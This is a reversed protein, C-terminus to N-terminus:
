VENEVSQLVSMVVDKAQLPTEIEVNIPKVPFVRPDVM